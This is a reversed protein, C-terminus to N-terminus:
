SSIHLPEREERDIRKVSYCCFLACFPQGLCPRMSENDLALPVVISNGPSTAKCIEYLLHQLPPFLCILIFHFKEASVYVDMALKDDVNFWKSGLGIKCLADLIGKTPVCM